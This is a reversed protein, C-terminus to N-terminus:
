PSPKHSFQIPRLIGELRPDHPLHPRPRDDPTVLREVLMKAAKRRAEGLGQQRAQVADAGNVDVDVDTVTYANSGGQAHAGGGAALAVLLAVVTTSFWRTSFWRTSFRHTSFWRVPPM